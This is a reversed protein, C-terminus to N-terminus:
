FVQICNNVSDCVFVFGHKDVAIGHPRCLQGQGCGFSNVFEGSTRFVSVHCSGEKCETIYIYNGHFCLGQKLRLEDQGFERLYQGCGNFVLVQHKRCDLVYVNAECDFDVDVPEKLQGPSHTGFSRVFNLDPDFVQVRGNDSDCVYVQHNHYRVGYPWDFEGAKRGKKGVSKVVEGRRNFKQVKYESAVYVNGKGDTAIGTPNKDGFAKSKITLAKQGQADLATCKKDWHETVFLEGKGGFAIYMPRVGRIVRVPAGLQTPPHQVFVELTGIETDNVRVTLQHCGRVTPTYSLEYTSPTQRVVTIQLVSDDVLSKLEASVYQPIPSLQGRTDHKCLTFKSEQNIIATKLGPGDAVFGKICLEDLSTPPPVAVYIDAAENSTLKVDQYESSVQHIRSTMLQKMSIFEEDSANEATMEVFEVLSELCVVGLQLDEQQRDLVDVKRRVVEKAQLLLVQECESLITCLQTRLKEFSQRITAAIGVDQDRIEQKSGEVRAITESVDKHINRLPVLGSLVEERSACALDKVFDFKHGAHDVLTCDRCIFQECELCYLELEGDHKKCTPPNKTPLQILPGKKMESIPVTKHGEFVKMEMHANTCSTCIFMGTGCTHCFSTAPKAKSCNQCAIENCEVKKMISYVEILRNIFFVTPLSNPDNGAVAVVSRCQPCEM